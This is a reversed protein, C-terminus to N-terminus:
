IINYWALRMKDVTINQQAIKSACSRKKNAKLCPVQPCRRHLSVRTAFSTLRDCMGRHPTESDPSLHVSILVACALTAGGCATCTLPRMAGTAVRLDRFLVQPTKKKRVKEKAGQTDFSFTTVVQLPAFSAHAGAAKPNCFPCLIFIV